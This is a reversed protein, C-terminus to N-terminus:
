RGKRGDGVEGRLFSDRAHIVKRAGFRSTLAKHAKLFQALKQDYERDLSHQDKGTAGDGEVIEGNGLTVLCVSLRMEELQWPSLLMADREQLVEEESKGDAQGEM